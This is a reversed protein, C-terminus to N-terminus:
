LLGDISALPEDGRFYALLREILADADPPGEWRLTLGGDAAEVAFGWFQCCRKEEIALRRLDADIDARNVFHLLMGHETRELRDLNHRLREILEIRDPIEDSGITCVLPATADHIPIKTV